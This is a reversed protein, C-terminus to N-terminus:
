RVPYRDVEYSRDGVVHVVVAVQGGRRLEDAIRMAAVHSLGTHEPRTVVDEATVVSYASPEHRWLAGGENDAMRSDNREAPSM